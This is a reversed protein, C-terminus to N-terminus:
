DLTMAKIETVTVKVVSILDKVLDNSPCQVQKYNMPNLFQEM